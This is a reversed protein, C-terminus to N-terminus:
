WPVARRQSWVQQAPHDPHRSYDHVFFAYEGDDRVDFTTTEPGFSSTDDVDLEAIVEGSGHALAERDGYFVHYSGVTDLGVLHSDLDSPHEGWTLVARYQTSGLQSSMRVNILQPDGATGEFNRTFTIFGPAEVTLTSEGPVVQVEYEGDSASVSSQSKGDSGTATVKAGAIPEATSANTVLGHVTILDEDEDGDGGGDDDTSCLEWEIPPNEWLPIRVEAVSSAWSEGITFGLVKIKANIGLEAGVLVARTSAVEAKGSEGDFEGNLGAEIGVKAAVEPGVVGYIKLTGAFKIWVEGNVGGSATVNQGWGLCEGEPGKSDAEPHKKIPKWKGAKYEVGYEFGGSYSDAFNVSLKAAIEGSLTLTGGPLLVVPVPGVAFTIPTSTVEALQKEFERKIEGSIGVDYGLSYGGNIATKFHKLAPTPIGFKWDVKIDLNIVFGLHAEVSAELSIGGEKKVKSKAAKQTDSSARSVDKKKVLKDLPITLKATGKLRLEAETGVGASRAMPASDARLVAADLRQPAEAQVLAFSEVGDDVVEFDTDEDSPPVIQSGEGLLPMEESLEAQLFADTLAAQEVTIVWGESTQQVALVRQLAGEPTQASVGAVMVDGPKLGPDAAFTVQGAEYASITDAAVVVTAPAVVVEDLEPLVVQTTANAKDTGGDRSTAVARFEVNGDKPSATDLRWVAGAVSYEVAGTGILEGDGYVEVRDIPADSTIRGTLSILGEVALDAREPATITVDVAGSESTTEGALDGLPLVQVSTKAGQVHVSAASTASEVIEIQPIAGRTGDVLIGRSRGEAPAGLNIFSRDGAESTASVLALAATRGNAGPVQVSGPETESAISNAWSSEAVPVFSGTANAASMGQAAGVVWGRVDLRVTGGAVSSVDVEGREDVIAITTVLSRGAPLELAQGSITVTSETPLDFTVTAHVARVGESPVGGLGLVSIGQGAAALQGPGTVTTSAADARTVAAPLAVTSGPTTAQEEFHALVEVRSTVPASAFLPISGDRVPVLVTTSTDVGAVASLM